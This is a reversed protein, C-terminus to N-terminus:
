KREIWYDPQRHCHAVALISGYDKEISWANPNESIRHIAKKIEDKFPIGKSGTERHVKLRKTAKENRKFKHM